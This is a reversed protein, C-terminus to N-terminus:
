GGSQPLHESHDTWLEARGTRHDSITRNPELQGATSVQLIIIINNCHHINTYTDLSLTPYSILLGPSELAGISLGYTLILVYLLLLSSLCPVAALVGGITFLVPLNWREPHPSPTASDYAITVMTGDNLVTIFMLLLVPLSFYSPWPRSDESM